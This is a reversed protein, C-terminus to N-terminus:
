TISKSPWCIGEYHARTKITDSVRVLDLVHQNEALSGLIEVFEQSKNGIIIVESHKLIEGIDEVM